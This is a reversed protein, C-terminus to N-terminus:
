LFFDADHFFIDSKNPCVNEFHIRQLFSPILQLKEVDKCENCRKWMQCMMQSLNLMCKELNDCTM